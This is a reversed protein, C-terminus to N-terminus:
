QGRGADPQGDAVRGSWLSNREIQGFPQRESGDLAHRAGTGRGCVYRGGGGEILGGGYWYRKLFFWFFYIFLAEVDIVVVNYIKNVSDRWCVGSEAM